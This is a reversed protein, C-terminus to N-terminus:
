QVCRLSMGYYTDYGSVYCNDSNFKLFYGRSGSPSSSWFYGIGAFSDATSGSGSSRNGAAPLCLIQTGDKFIAYGNCWGYSGSKYTTNNIRVYTNAPIVKGPLVNLHTQTPTSWGSPCASKADNFTFYYGYEWPKSVFQNSTNAVNYASWKKGGITAYPETPVWAGIGSMTFLYQSGSQLNASPLAQNTKSFTKTGGPGGDNTQFNYDMSLVRSGLPLCITSKTLPTDASSSANSFYTKTKTTSGTQTFSTGGVNWNAQEPLNNLSVTCNSIATNTYAISEIKVWINCCRRKFTIALSINTGMQSASITQSVIDTSMFDDGDKVSIASSALEPLAATTNFSYAFIKYSGAPLTINNGSVPNTSGGQYECQKYIIKAAYEADKYVVVRYRIGSPLNTVARTHPSSPEASGPQTVLQFGQM